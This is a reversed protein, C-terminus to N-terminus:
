GCGCRDRLPRHRGVSGARWRTPTCSRPPDAGAAWWEAGRRAAGDWRRVRRTPARDRARTRCGARDADRSRWFRDFARERQAATMGVGEDAVTLEVTRDEASADITVVSGEPAVDLANNLLNDLVQELAGPTSRVFVADGDDRDAGVLRVRREAALASWAERRAAVLATLDVPVPASPEAEVRALVLLGDVLRSLRSVEALAGAVDQSAAPDRVEGDLNELRLRLAALPSRLQHSADAVFARQAGVLRELRAATGNLSRALSRVEPPGPPVEARTSLDGGGLRAAAVELDALPRTVSRALVLSVLFVVGLVVVAVAGLVIWNRRVREDVYSTPYTVRVAGVVASGDVIPAAVYFLDTGLTASYRTGAAERGRLAAMIEPRDAFSRVGREPPDSDALATGRKDTIVVRGGIDRQYARALSSLTARHGRELAEESRLSLALADHRVGTTLERRELRGIAIGLPVGLVVLVFLTISLYSVLLRRRM